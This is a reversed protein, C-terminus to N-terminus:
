VSVAVKCRRRILLVGLVAFVALVISAPEPVLSGSLQIDAIQMSNAASPNAVSPFDVMYSTYSTSNSFFIDQEQGRQSFLPVAGSSILTWFNQWNTPNLDPRIDNPNNDNTGWVEFTAPDREPSDNASLLGLENAITRGVSPTVVIGAAGQNFNLYKSPQSSDISNPATEASPSNAATGAGPVANVGAIPDGVKFINQLPSVQSGVTTFNFGSIQQAANFGGTAGTFGVLYSNGGGLVQQSSPVSFTKTVTNQSNNQETLTETLTGIGDYSMSVNVPNSVSNLTVPTVPTYVGGSQEGGADPSQGIGVGGGSGTFINVTMAESKTIGNTGNVPPNAFSGAYGLAGGGGGL